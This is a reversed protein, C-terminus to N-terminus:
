ENYVLRNDHYTMFFNFFSKPRKGTCCLKPRFICKARSSTRSANNFILKSFLPYSKSGVMKQFHAYSLDFLFDRLRPIHLFELREEYELDPKIVKLVARQVKVLRECNQNGLISFWAPAAYALISRMNTLYFTLLELEDLGITKLKMM